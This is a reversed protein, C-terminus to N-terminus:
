NYHWIDVLLTLEKFFITFYTPIPRYSSWRSNGKCPSIGDPGNGNRWNGNRWNGNRRNKSREPVGLFMQFLTSQWSESSSFFIWLVCSILSFAKKSSLVPCFTCVNSSTSEKLSRAVYSSFSSKRSFVIVCSQPQSTASYCRSDIMTMLTLIMTATRRTTMTITTATAINPRLPLYSKITELIVNTQDCRM